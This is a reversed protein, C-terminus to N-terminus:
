DCYYYSPWITLNAYKGAALCGALPALIIWDFPTKVLPRSWLCSSTHPSCHHQCGSLLLVLSITGVDWLFWYWGFLFLMPLPFYWAVLQAPGQCRLLALWPWLFNRLVGARKSCVIADGYSTTWDRGPFISSGERDCEVEGCNYTRKSVMGNYKREGDHTLM